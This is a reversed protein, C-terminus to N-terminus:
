APLNRVEQCVLGSLKLEGRIALLEANKPHVIVGVNYQEAIGARRGLLACRLTLLRGSMGLGPSLRPPTHSAAIFEFCNSPNWQTHTFQEWVDAYWFGRQFRTQLNVTGYFVRKGIELTMLCKYKSRPLPIARCTM